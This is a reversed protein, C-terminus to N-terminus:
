QEAVERYFAKVAQALGAGAEQCTNATLSLKISIGNYSLEATLTCSFDLLRIDLSRIAGDCLLHMLEPDFGAPSVPAASEVPAHVPAAIAPASLCGMLIIFLFLKKM